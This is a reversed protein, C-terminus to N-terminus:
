ISIFLLLVISFDALFALFYFNFFNLCSFVLSFPLSNTTTLALSTFSSSNNFFVWKNNWKQFFYFCFHFVFVQLWTNCFIFGEGFFFMTLGDKLSLFFNFTNTIYIRILFIPRQFNKNLFFTSLILSSLYM